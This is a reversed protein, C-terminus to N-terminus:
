DFLGFRTKSFIKILFLYKIRFDVHIEKYIIKKKNKNNKKKIFTNTRQKLKLIYM